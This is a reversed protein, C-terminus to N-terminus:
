ATAYDLVSGTTRVAGTGLATNNEVRLTGGALTTGGSETTTEYTRGNDEVLATTIEVEELRSAAMAIVATDASSAIGMGDLTSVLGDFIECAAVVLGTRAAADVAGAACESEDQV